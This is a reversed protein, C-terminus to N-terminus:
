GKVRQAVAAAIVSAEDAAVSALAGKVTGTDVNLVLVRM